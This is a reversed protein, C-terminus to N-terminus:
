VGHYRYWSLLFFFVCPSLVTSCLVARFNADFRTCICWLVSKLEFRVSLNEVSPVFDEASAPHLLRVVFSRNCVAVHTCLHVASPHVIPEGVGIVAVFVGQGRFLSRSRATVFSANEFSM